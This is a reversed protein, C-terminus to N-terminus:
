LSCVQCLGTNMGNYWYESNRLLCTATSYLERFGSRNSNIFCNGNLYQHLQNFVLEEFLRYVVPLVSIPGYNCKETKEGDKFIPSARGIKWPDLFQSTELSTNILYALSDEIFPM